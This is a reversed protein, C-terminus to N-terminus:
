EGNNVAGSELAPKANFNAQEPPLGRSRVQFPFVGDEKSASVAFGNLRSIPQSVFTVVTYEVCCGPTKNVPTFFNEAPIGFRWVRNCNAGATM